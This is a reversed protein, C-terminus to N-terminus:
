PPYTADVNVLVVELADAFEMPVSVVPNYQFYAQVMWRQEYQQEDDELPVLIPSDAFLPDCTPELQICTTEDRWLSAFVRSWDGSTGGYFDVQLREKFNTQIALEVAPNVLDWTVENQNLRDGMTLQMTAYGPSAPPMADRNPLGQLILSPDLGTLNALYTQFLVYLQAQTISTVYGSVGAIGSQQSRAAPDRHRPVM